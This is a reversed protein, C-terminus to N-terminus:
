RKVLEKFVNGREEFNKYYGYSAAAPSLICIGNKSTNKKALKVANELDKAYIYKNNKEDLNNYKDLMKYIKEGSEGILLVNDIDSKTLFDVLESYNVGRDKGGIIVTNVKEFSKITCITSEPITAISDNYFDIDNYKGIYEIRNELGKFSTIENLIEEQKLGIEFCVGIAVAINYRNHEGRLTTNLEKKTIITEINNDVFVIEDKKINIYNNIKNEINNIQINEKELDVYVPLKRQKHELIKKFNINKSCGNYILLDSETQFEYVKEKALIYDEFSEYYDLHEEYINLLVAINPSKTLYQIQHSSMEVVVITDKKINNIESFIPIGINGVFICDLNCDKLIHYILSSTTSKGKTGTIGIVNNKSYELFLGTQSTIKEKYKEYVDKKLPVGPSKIIIDFRDFYKVDDSDFIIEVNEDEINEVVSYDLITLKVDKFRDRIFKYTSKGEKGFGLILIRKNELFDYINDILENKM